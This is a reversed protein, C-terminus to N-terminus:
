HGGLDALCRAGPRIVFEDGFQTPSQLFGVLRGQPQFQQALFASAESSIAMKVVM